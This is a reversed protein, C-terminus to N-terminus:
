NSALVAEVDGQQWGGGLALYLTIAANLRALKSDLFNNRSNFLTTQAVLVTEYDVAGTRYRVEALRFAEEAHRLNEAAVESLNDLLEINSLNVEIDNFAGIVTKRYSALGSTLALRNREVNRSRSGNDLLTEVLSAGASVFLDSASLLDSLSGSVLSASGTLSINPLFQLRALDVNRASQVLRSRAQVIDPRRELLSSPLGPLIEPITVDQLTSGSVDFGQISTALMLALASRAAYENQELSRLSAKLTDVAIRQQLVDLNTIMGAKARTQTIRYITEANAVNSEAADIRDRLLLVQFYTSAATALTNLRTDAASAVSADYGAKASDYEAPKALIDSYVVGLSLDASTDTGDSYDGGDPKNGSYRGDAGVSLTPVPFRNFGADRLSLQAQALNARNIELDLNQQEIQGILGNLEDSQFAQWWDSAPWGSDESATSQEWATPVDGRPLDPVPTISCAALSLGAAAAFILQGFRKTLM